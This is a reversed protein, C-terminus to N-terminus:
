EEKHLGSIFDHVARWYDREIAPKIYEALEETTELEVVERGNSVLWEIYQKFQDDEDLSKDMKRECYPSPYSSDLHHGFFTGRGDGTVICDDCDARFMYIKRMNVRDITVVYNNGPRVDNETLLVVLRGPLTLSM